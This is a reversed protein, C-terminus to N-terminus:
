NKSPNAGSTVDVDPKLPIVKNSKLVAQESPAPVTSGGWIIRWPKDALTATLAKANSSVVKLNDTSVQLNTLVDSLHERNQPTNLNAMVGNSNKLFINANDILPPLSDSLKISLTDLRNLVPKLQTILAKAQQLAQGAPQILDALDFPMEGQMVSGDAVAKANRDPGPTILVYKASIGIGDQKIIITSDEGIELNQDIQIVVAVCNFAHTLPDQTQEARPILNVATVRGVTAGAYKVASNASIGTADPFDVTFTYRSGGFSWKGIALSLAALMILAAIMFTIAITANMKNEKM